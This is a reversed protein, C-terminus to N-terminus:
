FYIFLYFILILSSSFIFHMSYSGHNDTSLVSHFIAPLLNLMPAMTKVGVVTTSFFIMQEAHLPEDFNYTRTCVNVSPCQCGGVCGYMRARLWAGCSPFLLALRGDVFKWLKLTMRTFAPLSFSLYLILVLAM